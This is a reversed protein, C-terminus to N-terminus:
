AFDDFKINTYDMTLDETKEIQNKSYLRNCFKCKYRTLNGGMYRGNDKRIVINKTHVPCYLRKESNDTGGSVGELDDLNLELDNLKNEQM